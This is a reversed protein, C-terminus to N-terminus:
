QLTEANLRADRQAKAAMKAAIFDETMKRLRAANEAEKETLSQGNDM